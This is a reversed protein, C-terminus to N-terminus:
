RWGTDGLASQEVALALVEFDGARSASTGGNVMRLAEFKLSIQILKHTHGWVPLMKFVESSGDQPFIPDAGDPLEM